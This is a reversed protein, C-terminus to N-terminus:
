DLANAMYSSNNFDRLLKRSFLNLSSVVQALRTTTNRSLFTNTITSASTKVACWTM